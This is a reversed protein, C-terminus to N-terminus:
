ASFIDINMDRTLKYHNYICDKADKEEMGHYFKDLMNAEM